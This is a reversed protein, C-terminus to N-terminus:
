NLIGDVLFEPNSRSYILFSVIRKSDRFKIYGIRWRFRLFHKMCKPASAEASFTIIVRSDRSMKFFFIFNKEKM